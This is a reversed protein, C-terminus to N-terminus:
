REDIKTSSTGRVHEEGTLQRAGIARVGDALTREVIWKHAVHQMEVHPVDESPPVTGNVTSEEHLCRRRSVVEFQEHDIVIQLVSTRNVAFALREFLQQAFEIAM